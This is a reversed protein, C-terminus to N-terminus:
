IKKRYSHEVIKQKSWNNSNTLKDNTRAFIIYMAFFRLLWQESTFSILLLLFAWMGHKFNVRCSLYMQYVLICVFAIGLVIFSYMLTNDCYLSVEKQTSIGMGFLFNFNSSNIYDILSVLGIRSAVNYESSAGFKSLASLVLDSSSIAVIFFIILALIIIKNYKSTSLPLFNKIERRYGWIGLFLCIIGTTSGTTFLAILLIIMKIHRNKEESKEILLIFALTLFFQYAGPEWFISTNRKFANISSNGHGFPVLFTYLNIGNVYVRPDDEFPSKSVPFLNAFSPRALYIGWMIISALALFTMINTYYKSFKDLPLVTALLMAGVLVIIIHAYSLLTSDLNTIMTGILCFSFSILVQIDKKRFKVRRYLAIIALITIAIIDNKDSIYFPNGAIHLLIFVLLYWFINKIKEVKIM